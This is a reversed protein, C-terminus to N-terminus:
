IAYYTGGFLAMVGECSRRFAETPADHLHGLGIHKLQQWRKGDFFEAFRNAKMQIYNGDASVVNWHALQSLQWQETPSGGLLHVDWGTFALTSLQCGGYRTPVSYALIIPKQNIFRPIRDIVDCKPIVLVHDTYQSAEEAWDMVENFQDPHELDLVTARNPRHKALFRMYISRDPNKWNQDAFYLEDAYVTAPLQAGAKFGHDLAIQTYARNGGGCYILTPFDM